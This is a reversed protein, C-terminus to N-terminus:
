STIPCKELLFRTFNALKTLKKGANIKFRINNIM